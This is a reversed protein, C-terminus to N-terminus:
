KKTEDVTNSSFCALLYIHEAFTESYALQAYIFWSNNNNNLMACQSIIRENRCIFHQNSIAVISAKALKTSM